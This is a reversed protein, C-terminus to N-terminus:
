APVEQGNFLECLKKRMKKIDYRSAMILTFLLLSVTFFVFLVTIFMDEFHDMSSLILNLVIFFVIASILLKKNLFNLVIHIRSKAGEPHIVGKIRLWANSSDYNRLMFNRTVDFTNDNIIGLFYRSITVINVNFTTPLDTNAIIVSLAEDASLESSLWFAEQKFFQM